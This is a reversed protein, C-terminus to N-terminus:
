INSIFIEHKQIKPLQIGFSRSVYFKVKLLVSFVIQLLILLVVKKGVFNKYCQLFQVELIM